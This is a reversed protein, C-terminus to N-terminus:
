FKKKKRLNIINKKVKYKNKLRRVKCKLKNQCKQTHSQVLKNITCIKKMNKLNKM